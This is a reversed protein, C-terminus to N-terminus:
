KMVHFECWEEDSESNMHQGWSLSTAPHGPSLDNAALLLDLFQQHPDDRGRREGEM